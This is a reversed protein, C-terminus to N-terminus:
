NVVPGQGQTAAKLRAVLTAWDVSPEHGIVTIHPLGSGAVITYGNDDPDPDPVIGNMACVGNALTCGLEIKSYSFTKFLRLAMGQLGGAIGGGGVSTLSQIAHQSIKGGDDASLRASFTTPKWDVLKLDHIDGDLRGTIQGFDFVHTIQALDLQQLDI